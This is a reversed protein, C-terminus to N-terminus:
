WARHHTGRWSRIAHGFACSLRPLNAASEIGARVVRGGEITSVVVLSEELIGRITDFVVAAQQESRGPGEEFGIHTHWDGFLIIVGAPGFVVYLPLDPQHENPVRVTTKDNEGLTAYGRWDPYAALVADRVRNAPGVDSM